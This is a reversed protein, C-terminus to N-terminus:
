ARLRKALEPDPLSCTDAKGMFRYRNAAVWRYVADRLFRPVLKFVGLVRWPGGLANGLEIWGDSHTFAKGDSERLLVMTGGVTAAHHSFGHQRSFEGQLPAFAINGRRDLRFVRRVSASCFACDGDFFLVWGM